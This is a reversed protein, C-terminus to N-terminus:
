IEEKKVVAMHPATLEIWCPECVIMGQENVFFEVQEDEDMVTKCDPTACKTM